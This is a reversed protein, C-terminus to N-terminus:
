FLDPRERPGTGGNRAGDHFGALYVGLGKGGIYKRAIEEPVVHDRFSGSGLDVHSFSGTCREEGKRSRFFIAYQDAQEAPSFFGFLKAIIRESVTDRIERKAERTAEKLDRSLRYTEGAAGTKRLFIDTRRQDKFM